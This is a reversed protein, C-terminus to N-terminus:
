GLRQRVRDLFLREDLNVTGDASAIAELTRVVFDRYEEDAYQSIEDLAITLSAEGITARLANHVAQAAPKPDMGIVPDHLSREIAAIETEDIAGDVRCLELALYMWREIILERGRADTKEVRAFREVSGITEANSRHMLWLGLGVALAGGAIVIQLTLNM